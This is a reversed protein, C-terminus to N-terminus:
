RATGYALGSLLKGPMTGFLWSNFHAASAWTEMAVMQRTLNLKFKRWSYIQDAMSLGGLVAMYDSFATDDDFVGTASAIAAAGAGAVLAGPVAGAGTAVMAGGVGVAATGAAQKVAKELSFGATIPMHLVTSLDIVSFSVDIGLPEGQDTWGLNGTGRTITLSDIMGLRVQTRGQSYLECLFPSTYSQKGTSIPLAAALLMSLPIYLNMFRSMKNGYPSRLEITYDAKPLNATSNEWVKPIDVFASGALAALGSMEVSALVGDAVQKVANFASDLIGVGTGGSFAFRASRAAGSISNLKSALESEGVSNSFSESTTGTHDVKFTVFQGGDQFEAWFFESAFPVWDWFDGTSEVDSTPAETGDGAAVKPVSQPLKMYADLYKAHTGYGQTPTISEKQFDLLNKRLEEKSGAKEVIDKYRQRQKNALRQAKTAVAFVDIAGSDTWIKPDLSHFKKLDAQTFEVESKRLEAEDQGLVRPVMGMNVAIANAITNVANWYLPMAPKLYYYRSVPKGTFFNLVQGGLIFLQFPLTLITGVAKGLSFFVSDARGTRAALSAQPNYFNFFFNTISNFQPVGFRMHIHQAHNDIAESYYRGMGRSAGYMSPVKVDAFRTFQPAPNIALNGGLTTDTFKYQADTLVRRVADANAMANKPLMFSQRVWDRDKLYSM